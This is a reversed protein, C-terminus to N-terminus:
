PKFAAPLVRSLPSLRSEATKGGNEVDMWMAVEGETDCDM